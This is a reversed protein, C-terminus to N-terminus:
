NLIQKKEMSKNSVNQQKKEEKIANREEGIREKGVEQWSNRHPLLDEHSWQSYQSVIVKTM